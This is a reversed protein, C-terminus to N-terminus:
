CSDTPPCAGRQGRLDKGLKTEYIEVRRITMNWGKAVFELNNLIIFQSQHQRQNWRGVVRTKSSPVCTGMEALYFSLGPLRIKFGYKSKLKAPFLKSNTLPITFAHQVM